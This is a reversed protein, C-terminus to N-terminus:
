PRGAIYVHQLEEILHAALKLLRHLHIQRERKTLRYKPHHLLYEAVTLGRSTALRELRTM